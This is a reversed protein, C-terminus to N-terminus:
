SSPAILSQIEMKLTAINKALQAIRPAYPELRASYEKIYRERAKKQKHLKEKEENNQCNALKENIEALQATKLALKQQLQDLLELSRQHMEQAKILCAKKAAVQRNYNELSEHQIYTSLPVNFFSRGPM